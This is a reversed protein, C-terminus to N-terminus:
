KILNIKKLITKTIDFESKGIVISNKPLVYSIENDKSFKAVVQNLAVILEQKLKNRKNIVENNKKRKLEKLELVKKKLISIKKKLEEESLINKSSIIKEEEKKLKEEIKKFENINKKNISKLENNISIGKDSNNLIYNVDLFVIKENSFSNNMLLLLFCLILITNKM